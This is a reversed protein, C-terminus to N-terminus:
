ALGLLGWRGLIGGSPPASLDWRTTIDKGYLM